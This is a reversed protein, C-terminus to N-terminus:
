KQHWTDARRVRAGSVMAALTKKLPVHDGELTTTTLTLIKSGELLFYQDQRLPFTRMNQGSGDTDRWTFALRHFERGGMTVKGNEVFTLRPLGLSEVLKKQIKRYGEDVPQQGGNANTADTLVAVLSPRYGTKSGGVLTATSAATMPLRIWDEPCPIRFGEFTFERM